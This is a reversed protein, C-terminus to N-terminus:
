ESNITWDSDHGSLTSDCDSGIEYGDDEDKYDVDDVISPFESSPPIINVVTEGSSGQSTTSPHRGHGSTREKRGRSDQKRKRREVLRVIRKSKGSTKPNQRASTRKNKKNRHNKSIGADRARLVKETPIKMKRGDKRKGSSPGSGSSSLHGPHLSTGTFGWARVIREVTGSILARAENRVVGDRLYKDYETHCHRAYAFVANTARESMGLKGKRGVRGKGKQMTWGVCREREDDPMYPFGEGVAERFQGELREDRKVTARARTEKTSDHQALVAEYVYHPVRLGMKQKKSDQVVYVKRGEARTRKRCNATIYANGSPVFIYRHPMPDMLNVLKEDPRTKQAPM